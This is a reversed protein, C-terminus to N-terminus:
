DVIIWKVKLFRVCQVSLVIGDDVDNTYVGNFLKASHNASNNNPTCERKEELEVSSAM